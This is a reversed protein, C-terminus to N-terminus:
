QNTAPNFRCCIPVLPTTKGPTTEVTAALHENVESKPDDEIHAPQAPSRYRDVDIIMDGNNEM